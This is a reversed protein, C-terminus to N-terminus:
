TRTGTLRIAVVLLGMGVLWAVLGEAVPGVHGLGAGGPDDVERLSLVYRVLADLEPGDLRFPPMAGPGVIVAEAVEVATAQHVDPAVQGGGVSAGQGGPGHCAACNAGYLQRGLSLDGAEPDVVPIGPGRGPALSTVFAVLDGIEEPSYAPPRRVAQRDPDALPMRGTSLQFDVSAAGVGLLPPGDPTGEGAPGHCSACGVAYLEAGRRVDEQASAWPRAVALAPGLGLLAAAAVRSM